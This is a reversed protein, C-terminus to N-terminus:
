FVLPVIGTFFIIVIAVWSLIWTGGMESIVMKSYKNDLDSLTKKSCAALDEPTDCVRLCDAHLFASIDQPEQLLFRAYGEM